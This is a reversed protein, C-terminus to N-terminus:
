APYFGNPPSRMGCTQEDPSLGMRQLDNSGTTGCNGPASYRCVQTHCRATKGEVQYEKFGEACGVYVSAKWLVQTLHGRRGYPKDLEMEVFRHLINTPTPQEDWASGLGGNKLAINEGAGNRSGIMGVASPAHPPPGVRTDCYDLVYDAWHKAQRALESDWRQPVYNSNEGEQIVKKDDDYWYKARRDNHADLWLVERETMVPPNLTFPRSWQGNDKKLAFYCKTILAEWQGNSDEMHIELKPCNDNNYDQMFFEYDDAELCMESTQSPCFYKNDKRQQKNNCEWVVNGSVWPTPEYEKLDNRSGQSRKQIFFFNEDHDDKEFVIKVKKQDVGCGMKSSFSEWEVYPGPTPEDSAITSASDDAPRQADSPQNTPQNTSAPVPNAAFWRRLWKRTVCKGTDATVDDYVCENWDQQTTGRRGDYLMACKSDSAPEASYSRCSKPDTSSRPAVCTFCGDDGDAANAFTAAAFGALILGLWRDAGGLTLGAACSMVAVQDINDSSDISGDNDDDLGDLYRTKLEGCADNGIVSDRISSKDCHTKGNLNGTCDGNDNCTERSACLILVAALLVHILKTM